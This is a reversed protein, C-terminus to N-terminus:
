APLDASAHEGSGEPCNTIFPCPQPQLSGPKCYHGAPCSYQQSPQPCYFRLARVPPPPPSPHLPAYPPAPSKLSRALSPRKAIFETM